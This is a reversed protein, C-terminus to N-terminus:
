TYLHDHLSRVVNFIPENERHLVHLSPQGGSAYVYTM